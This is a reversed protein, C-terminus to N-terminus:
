ERRRRVVWYEIENGHEDMEREIDKGYEDDPLDDVLSSDVWQWEYENSNMENNNNVCESEDNEFHRLCSLCCYRHVPRIRIEM